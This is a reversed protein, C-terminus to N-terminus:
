EKPKKNSFKRYNKKRKKPKRKGSSKGKYKKDWCGRKYQFVLYGPKDELLEGYTLDDDKYQGFTIDWCGVRASNQIQWDEEAQEQARQAEEM